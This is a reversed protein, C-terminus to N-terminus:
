RNIKNDENERWKKYEKDSILLGIIAYALIAAMILIIYKM